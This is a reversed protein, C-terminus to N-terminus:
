APRPIFVNCYGCDKLDAIEWGDPTSNHIVNSNPAVVLYSKTAEEGDLCRRTVQWLRQLGLQIVNVNPDGPGPWVDPDPEIWEKKTAVVNRKPPAKKKNKM